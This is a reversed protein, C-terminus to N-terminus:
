SGVVEARDIAELYAHMQDYFAARATLAGLVGIALDRRGTSTSALDTAIARLAAAHDDDVLAHLEFFARDHASLHPWARRIGALLRQYMPRVIGETAIGLAGVAVGEAGRCLADFSQIWASTAVLPERRDLDALDLAVAALFRRFLQPHPVAVSAADIGAAALESRHREDLQGAEEASNPVLAARHEPRDLTAMAAALFRTFRQSYPYYEGFFGALATRPHRFSGASIAELLPHHAARSEDAYRQLALVFVSPALTDAVLAHLTLPPPSAAAPMVVAVM